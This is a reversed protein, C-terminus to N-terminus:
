TMVQKDFFEPTLGLLKLCRKYGDSPASVEFDIGDTDWRSKAALLIQLQPATLTAVQEASIRVPSGTLGILRELLNPVDESSPHSPLEITTPDNDM